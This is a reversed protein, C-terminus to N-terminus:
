WWIHILSLDHLTARAGRRAIQIFGVLGGAGREAAGLHRQPRFQDHLDARRGRGLQRLHFGAGHDDAHSTYLLCVQLQIRAHARTALVALAHRHAHAHGRDAHFAQRHAARGSGRGGSRSPIPGKRARWRGAAAAVGRRLGAHRGSFITSSDKGM